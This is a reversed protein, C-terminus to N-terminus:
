GFHIFIMAMAGDDFDQQLSSPYIPSAFTMPHLKLQEYAYIGNGTLFYCSKSCLFFGSVIGPSSFVPKM